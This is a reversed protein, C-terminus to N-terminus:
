APQLEDAPITPNDSPCDMAAANAKLRYSNRPGQDHAVLLLAMVSVSKVRGADSQSEVILGDLGFKKIIAAIGKIQFGITRDDVASRYITLVEDIRDAVIAEDAMQFVVCDGAPHKSPCM